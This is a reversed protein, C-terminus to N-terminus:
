VMYQPAYCYPIMLMCLFSPWCFLWNGNRKLRLLLEDIYIGFPVPSIVVGQRVGNSVDFMLNNNLQPKVGRPDFMLYSRNWKIKFKKYLYINLILRIIVPSLGRKVLKEFFKVFDIRGSAKSADLM